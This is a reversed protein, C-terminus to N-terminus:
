LVLKMNRADLLLPEGSDFIKWLANSVWFSFTFFQQMTLPACGVSFCSALLVLVETDLIRLASSERLSQSVQIMHWAKRGAGFMM